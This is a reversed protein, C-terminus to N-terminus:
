TLVVTVAGRVVSKSGDPETATASAILLVSGPKGAGSVIGSAEENPDLSVGILTSKFPEFDSQSLAAPSPNGHYDVPTVKFDVTQNPLMAFIM